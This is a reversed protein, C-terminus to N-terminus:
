GGTLGAYKQIIEEVVKISTEEDVKEFAADCDDWGQDTDPFTLAVSCVGLGQPKFFFRVEPTQDEGEDKKVLIQGVASTEYIKAFM